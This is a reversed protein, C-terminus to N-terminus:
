AKSQLRLLILRILDQQMEEYLQSEERSNGLVDETDFQFDRDISINQNEIEFKSEKVNVQFNIAYTLTYERARGNADVSVIRKTKSEQSLKLVAINDAAKETIKINSAKLSRILARSLTSDKQAADVYTIQMEVPLKYAGRLKFGCASLLLFCMVYIIGNKM